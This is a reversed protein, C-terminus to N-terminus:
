GLVLCQLLRDAVVDQDAEPVVVLVDARAVDALAPRDPDGLVTAAYGTEPDGVVTAPVFQRLGAPSSWGASVRAAVSSRYIEGQGAMTRLAPRVLVEFVVLAAVPDGPLALVPVHRGTGHLMGLGFRGGPAMAVRDIRVDGLLPLVDKVTDHSAESLGATIVMVDARVLQDEISERLAARDDGVIPVQVGTAGADRVAAVLAYRNSEHVQGPAAHTGPEVLEDGVAVVVVRPSPHVTLRSCGAAAAVGLQRAGLRTGAPLVVTGAAVHHGAPRVHQGATVERPIVVEVLGRDTEEAPVVADAGPPLPAGSGVRVCQGAVLRPSEDPGPSVDAVVPLTSSTTTASHRGRRRGPDGAAVLAYGDCDAVAVGPVDGPAVVDAALVCGAADHLVVDLPEVPGVLALM